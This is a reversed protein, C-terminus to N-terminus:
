ERDESDPRATRSQIIHMRVRGEFIVHTGADRIEYRDASMRGMPGEGTVPRDGVVREERLFIRAHESAFAYGADTTLNVNAELDLVRNTPDFIGREALVRSAQEGASLFDYDLRPRDLDTVGADSDRRRVASDATVVYPTNNEDRGTFRPNIMRVDTGVAETVEAEGGISNAIMQVVILALIAIAGGMFSFRLARVFATRRRAAGLTLARRPEWSGHDAPQLAELGQATTANM